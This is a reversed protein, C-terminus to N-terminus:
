LLKMAVVFRDALRVGCRYECGLLGPSSGRAWEWLFSVPLIPNPRRVNRTPAASRARTAEMGSVAQGILPCGGLEDRSLPYVGTKIGDMLKSVDAAFRKREGERDRGPM